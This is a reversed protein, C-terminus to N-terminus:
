SCQVFASNQIEVIIFKQYYLFFSSLNNCSETGEILRRTVFNLCITLAMIDYELLLGVRNQYHSKSYVM